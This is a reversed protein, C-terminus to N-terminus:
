PDTDCQHCWYTVGRAELENHDRVDFCADLEEVTRPPPFRRQNGLGVTLSNNTL